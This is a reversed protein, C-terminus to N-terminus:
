GQGDCCQRKPDAVGDGLTQPGLAVSPRAFPRGDGRHDCRQVALDACVVGAQAVADTIARSLTWNAVFCGIPM